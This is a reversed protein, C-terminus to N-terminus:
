DPCVCWCSVCVWLGRTCWPPQGRWGVRSTTLGQFFNQKLLGLTEAVEYREGHTPTSGRAEVRRTGSVAGSSPQRAQRGGCSTRWLSYNILARQARPGPRTFLCRKASSGCVGRCRKYRRNATNHGATRSLQECSRYFSFVTEEGGTEEMLRIYRPKKRRRGDRKRAGLSRGDMRGRYLLLPRTEIRTQPSPPSSPPSSLSM